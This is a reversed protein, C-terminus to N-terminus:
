KRNRKDDVMIQKFQQLLKNGHCTRCRWREGPPLKVGKPPIVDNREFQKHCDGCKYQKM